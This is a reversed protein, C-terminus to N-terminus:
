HIAMGEPLLALDDSSITEVDTPWHFGHAIIWDKSTVWRKAGGTVLYVKQDDPASGPRRVLKGEYKKAISADHPSSCATGLVILVAFGVFAIRRVSGIM